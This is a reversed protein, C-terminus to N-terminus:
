PGRARDRSEDGGRTMSHVLGLVAEKQRASLKMFDQALTVFQEDALLDGLVQRNSEAPGDTDPREPDTVDMGTFFHSIPVGLARALALLRSASVRNAGNEYKQIQQFTVGVLSGLEAQSLGHSTRLARIRRGVLVDITDM